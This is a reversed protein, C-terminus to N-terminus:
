DSYLFHVLRVLRLLVITIKNKLKNTFIRNMESFGSVTNSPRVSTQLKLVDCVSLVYYPKLNRYTGNKIVCIYAKCRFRQHCLRCFLERM